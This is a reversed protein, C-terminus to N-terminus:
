ARPAVTVGLMTPLADTMRATIGPDGMAKSLLAAGQMFTLLEMAKADTDCAPLQGAAVAEDLMGAILRRVELYCRVLARRIQEDQTSMEAALNGIPCGLVRGGPEHAELYGARVAQAFGALRELPTSEARQTAYGRLEQLHADVVAEVLAVKSGFFHYFSGKKVGAADCLESVGVGNFGRAHFLQAAADILRQRADSQRGM